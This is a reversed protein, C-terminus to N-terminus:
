AYGEPPHFESESSPTDLLVENIWPFDFRFEIPGQLNLGTVCDHVLEVEEEFNTPLPAPAEPAEGQQAKLQKMLYCAGNCKLQPRDKNECWQSAIMDQNLVFGVQPAVGRFVGALYLAAMLSFTLFRM